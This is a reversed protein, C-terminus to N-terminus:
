QPRQQKFKIAVDIKGSGIIVGDFDKKEAESIKFARKIVFNAIGNPTAEPASWTVGSKIEFVVDYDAIPESNIFVYKASMKQVRALSKDHEQLQTFAMFFTMSIGLAFALPIKMKNLNLNLRLIKMKKHNRDM